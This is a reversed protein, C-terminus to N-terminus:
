GLMLYRILGARVRRDPDSTDAPLGHKGPLIAMRGSRCAALLAAELASWEVGGKVEAISPRYTKIKAM